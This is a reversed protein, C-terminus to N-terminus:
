TEKSWDQKCFAWKEREDTRPPHDRVFQIIEEHSDFIALLEGYNEKSALQELLPFVPKKKTWYDTDLFVMPAIMGTTSYHNQAADQFIEQITGASGPSFIIGATAISVLGDERVSNAFYKAIHTAFPTPPEHGYLWTPIGLSIHNKGPPPYKEIVGFAAALWRFSKYTPATALHSVADALEEETRDAFWAGLHTAEMAGPGGGSILLYGDLTLSRAIRAVELFRTESRKMGHGGMVAIVKDVRGSEKLFDHMADTIAHDHLRRALAETITDPSSRGTQEWHAYVRADKTECYSLPNTPTYDNDFLTDKNYLRPQYPNFPKPPLKPIRFRRWAGSPVVDRGNAQVGSVRRRRRLLSRFGFDIKAQENGEFNAMQKGFAESIEVFMPDNMLTLAQLPTNSADRRALCAEGSSADFTTFMAFPATRKQYTYISRRYRDEGASANWNSKSYNAAAGAPQPPRVPPGYMKTSLLGAAALASDRIVEADLRRRPFRQLLREAQADADSHSSSQQYTKSTVILRHLKKMSWGNEMLEVALYDLLSPHTPSEGQMGFDDVTSVLGTGFFAAWQRNVVVRATLPNKSSVLWRAFELRNGPRRSKSEDFIAEPLRPDVEHKPQTYEGRYHVFTKRAQGPPREKMVLTSQGHLPHQLKRIENAKAHVEKAQLLFMEELEDRSINASAKTAVVDESSESVSLRFKGLSSAFHRGFKMTVRFSTGIPLPSELNFVASNSIGTRGSVSWGTQVDGDICQAATGGNSGFHNKEFTATASQLIRRKGSEDELEFEVLYFDGKRGEYYTMGPGGGPLRKDPLVEIRIATVPQSQPAFDLRYTDFKTTDGNAFIVGDGEHTLHVMNTSMEKPTITTWEVFGPKQRGLWEQFAAEFEQQPKEETSSPWHSKLESMLKSVKQKREAHFQANNKKTLYLDPEDANNLYAMMGFYDEHTIPDFKHTHCQACGTTLGLWTTGTTAVRDTMAYYRFELPDIGGEENLMTNRHFGTAVLQSQTAAPIMDGALQEITFQDFPMDFNIARIVWDRYPWISRDRDKEYGNTDAYRALDLWKRAWREGYRPSALLQDVIATWNEETPNNIFANAQEITPPLGILDLYLRRILTASDAAASRTKGNAKLQRDVFHDVPQVGAPVPKRKPLVFAWHKEYAAGSNIWKRLIAKKESSLPKNYGPPPMVLEKDGSHIRDVVEDFDFDNGVDLRLGAERTEEDPGHCTFCHNSLIPRVDRSYSINLPEPDGGLCSSACMIGLALALLLKHPAQHM